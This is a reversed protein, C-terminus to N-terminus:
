LHLFIYLGWLIGNLLSTIGLEMKLWSPTLLQEFNTELRQRPIMARAAPCSKISPPPMQIKKLSEM